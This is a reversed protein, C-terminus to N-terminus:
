PRLGAEGLFLSGGSSRGGRRETRTLVLRDKARTMGVYLLRRAEQIEDDRGEQIARWGPMQQDEVGIIYVRSFELGKTSHLTLLNLRHPDAEVGDSTSLMARGLLDDIRESLTEGRSAEILLDLRAAAAPYREAPSREVRIRDMLARGGLREIVEELSPAGPLGPGVEAAYVDLCDSYRGLTYPRCLEALLREEPTPEPASDLALALGLFDLLHVQAAKRGRMAELTKLHPLLGALMLADDLAHHSRGVEVGFRRALDGLKASEESLSRSLPLTDYFVLDDVGGFPAAARRLVPVDFSHGNHAVLVDRGVFERFRPWVERFPPAERLDTESYGHAAQAGASIPGTCRVLTSFRDTVQGGRVRVAAIELIECTAVELGTTELDFTVFDRLEDRRAPPHLLQLAKFVLLPWRGQRVDSPRLVLDAVAPQDEPRLRSATAVGGGRLMGLLAIDVGRDAELWVRGGAAVASRLRDALHRAGAYAMPDTLDQYREELPNRAPGVRQSLLEAVMSEVSAHSREMARLNEVHFIFRWAKKADAEGRHRRGAFLRLSTVLDVGPKANARVDDLLPRPLAREALADLAEPDNPSRVVRLSAIVYAIVDDDMLAQGRALRCPVGERLLSGELLLGDRHYRYLVACEGWGPGGNAHQQQVDHILWEAEAHEDPFTRAEVDFPSERTAEIKKAFRAPNNAILRRAADFIQVSCRRNHDLVIPHDIGFDDRFRNLIGPDAGTWSFISQEDDGVGFLNRHVAVLSKLIGYQALNLDQFEDVLVYDWRSRVTQAVTERTRLLEGTLGVLGDFDVLNRERLVESYRGFLELDGGTLKYGQLRHRGFNGLLQAHREPRVRFRRLLRRQYDDDAVGFGPRLGAEVPFERLIALCLAHITGGTLEGEGLGVSSKLRSAIEEAAKNTFTVACIRDAPFGLCGVLHQVRGILCYTKGAGPGAVVLVPGLPAEIAKRQQATPGPNM